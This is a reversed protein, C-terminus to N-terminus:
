VFGCAIRSFDMSGDIRKGLRFFRRAMCFPMCSGRGRPPSGDGDRGDASGREDARLGGGIFKITSNGLAIKGGCLNAYVSYVLHDIM